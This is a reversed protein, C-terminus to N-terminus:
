RRAAATGEISQRLDIQSCRWMTMRIGESM